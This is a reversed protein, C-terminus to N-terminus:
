PGRRGSHRRSSSLTTMSPRQSSRPTVLAGDSTTAASGSASRAAARRRSRPAPVAQAPSARWPNLPPAKQRRQTRSSGSAASAAARRAARQSRTRTIGNRSPMGDLMWPITNGPATAVNRGTSITV